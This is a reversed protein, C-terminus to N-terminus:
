LYKEVAQEIVTKNWMFNLMCAARYKTWSFDMLGVEIGQKRLHERQKETARQDLWRKTKKAAGGDEIERLFDDAAATAQASGGVALVKLQVRGSKTRGFSISLGSTNAVGVFGEFGMAMRLSGDGFLDIWRFPSMQMLDYETMIFQELADKEEAVFEYGCIPCESVRAHVESNCEPCTKTPAEGEVTKDRGDLNATDDISGHTIVSTGFDM